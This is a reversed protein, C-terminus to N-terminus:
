GPDEARAIRLSCMEDAESGDTEARVLIPIMGVGRDAVPCEM